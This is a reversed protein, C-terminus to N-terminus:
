SLSELYGEELCKMVKEKPLPKSYYYGQLYDAGMETVIEAMELDEIGETVVKLNIDKFMAITNELVMRSSVKKMAAWVVYKDIKVITFPLDVLYNINSYGSGYDDLSFTLGMLTMRAMNQILRKESYAAASETIELNIMDPPINYKKLVGSIEKYIKEQMCQVVSLNVEIFDIGKSKLNFQRIFKCVEELVLIGIKNITGNQEAIRIFEEPSVYGYDPVNLRALAEMSHFRHHKTDYIPQYHVEFQNSNISNMIAQEIARRRGLDDASREDVEFFQGKGLTKAQTVGYEIAHILSEQDHHITHVLCISATLIVDTEGLKWPRRLINQILNLEKAGERKEPLTILFTDGEFRFVTSDSYEGQLASVLQQLLQNGGERGYMENIIKFNDMAIVFIQEPIDNKQHQKTRHFFAERNLAGTLSDVYVVTNESTLYMIFVSLSTGLGALMYNPLFFQVITPIITVIVMLCIWLTQGWGLLKHKACAYVVTGVSYLAANVYLYTHLIGHHYGTSDFYFILSTAPSTLALLVGIAAPIWVFRIFTSQTERTQQVRFYVYFVFMIPILNQTALFLANLVTNLWTPVQEFYTITYCSIVDLCTNSFCIAWYIRFVQSQFGELRRRSTAVLMLM